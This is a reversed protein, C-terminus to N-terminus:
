YEYVNISKWYKHICTYLDFCLPMPSVTLVIVNGPLYVKISCSFWLNQVKIDNFLISIVTFNVSRFQIEVKTLICSTDFVQEKIFNLNHM